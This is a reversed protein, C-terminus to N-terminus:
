AYIHPSYTHAPMGFEDHTSVSSAKPHPHLQLLKM